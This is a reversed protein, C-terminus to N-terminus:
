SVGELEDIRNRIAAAVKDRKENLLAAYLPGTDECKRVWSKAKNTHMSAFGDPVGDDSPTVKTEATLKTKAPAPAIKVPEKERGSVLLYGRDVLALLTEVDEWESEKLEVTSNPEITVTGLHYVFKSVNTVQM